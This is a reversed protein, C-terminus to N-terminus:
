RRGTGGYAVINATDFGSIDGYYVAVRGGGGGTSSGSSSGIGGSASITGTGELSGTEIWIGGGSGAGRRGSGGGDAKISGLLTISSAKIRVLGGGYGGPQDGGAYYDYYGGGGSGLHDPNRYDGYTEGIQYDGSEGGLGGYSGGSNVCSGSVNGLTRGCNGLGSRRGGLYGKGSVDIASSEDIVLTEIELELRSISETTAGSHTL